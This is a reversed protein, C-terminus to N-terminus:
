GGSVPPLFAIEDGDNVETDFDALEQNVAAKLASRHRQLPKLEPRRDLLDAVSARGEWPISLERRGAWQASQAFFLLKLAM